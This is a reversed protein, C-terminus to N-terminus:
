IKEEVGLSSFVLHTYFEVVADGEANANTLSPLHDAFFLQHHIGEIITSSLMQPYQYNEDIESIVKSINDVTKKYNYYVGDRNLTDVSKVMYSKSSESCIIDFLKRIDMDDSIWEYPKTLCYVVNKIKTYPCNVNNNKLFLIYEVWSWYWSTLYLLVKHKNSFYRYITAETTGIRESLKKFNFAEFGIENILEVSERVIAMGVTSQAPNKLYIDKAIQPSFKFLSLKM